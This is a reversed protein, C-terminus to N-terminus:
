NLLDEMFILIDLFCFLLLLNMCLPDEEKAQTLKIRLDKISKFQLYIPNLLQM